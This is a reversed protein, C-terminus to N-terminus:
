VHFGVFHSWSWSTRGWTLQYVACFSELCLRMYHRRSLQAAVALTFLDFLSTLICGHQNASVASHHHHTATPPRGHPVSSLQHLLSQDHGHQHQGCGRRGGGACVPCPQFSVPYLFLSTQRAPFKWVNLNSCNHKHQVHKWLYIDFSM